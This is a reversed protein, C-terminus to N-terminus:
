RDVEMWDTDRTVKWAFFPPDTVFQSDLMFNFNGINTAGKAWIFGTFTGGGSGDSRVAGDPCYVVGRLNGIASGTMKVSGNKVIILAKGTTYSGTPWTFKLNVENNTPSGSPFEVYVVVDGSHTPVMSQTIMVGSGPNGNYYGSTKAQQKLAALQTSSLGATSFISNLETVTFINEAPGRNDRDNVYNSSWYSSHGGSSTYIQSHGGNSKAYISGTAFVGAPGGTIQDTGTVTLKERGYFSGRVYISENSIDPGGNMNADGNIYFALPYGSGEVTVRQELKRYGQSSEGEATILLHASQAGSGSSLNLDCTACHNGDEDVEDVWITYRDNGITMEVPNPPNQRLGPSPDMLYGSGDSSQDPRLQILQNVTASFSLINMVNELGGEAYSFAQGGSYDASSMTQERSAIFYMGAAMVLLVATLYIVTILAVGEDNGLKWIRMKIEKM